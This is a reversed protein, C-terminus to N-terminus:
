EVKKCLGFMGYSLLMRAITISHAWMLLSILITRCLIYMTVNMIVHLLMLYQWHAVSSQCRQLHALKRMYRFEGM